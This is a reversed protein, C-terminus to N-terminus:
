RSEGKERLSRIRLRGIRRRLDAHALWFAVLYALGAAGAVLGAVLCSLPRASLSFHLSLLVSAGSSFFTAMLAYLALENGTPLISVHEAPVEISGSLIPCSEKHSASGDCATAPRADDPRLGRGKQPRGILPGHSEPISHTQEAGRRSDVDSSHERMTSGRPAM